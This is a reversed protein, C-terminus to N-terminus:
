LRRLFDLVLKNFTEVNAQHLVHGAGPICKGEAKPMADIL